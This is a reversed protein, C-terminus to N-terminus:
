HQGISGADGAMIALRKRVRRFYSVTATLRHAPRDSWREAIMRSSPNITLGVLRIDLGAYEVISLARWLADDIWQKHNGFAGGGLRTLLM